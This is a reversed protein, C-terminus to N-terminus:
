QLGSKWDRHRLDIVAAVAQYTVWDDPMGYESYGKSRTLGEYASFYGASGEKYFDKAFDAGESNLDFESFKGDMFKWVFAGPTINKQRLHALEEALDDEMEESLYNNFAAWAVFMGIHTAGAQTPLSPPFSPAGLHWSADDLSM